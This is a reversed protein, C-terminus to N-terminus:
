RSLRIELAHRRLLDAISEAQEADFGLWAVPKGFDIVVKGDKQGVALRIEGEDDSQLKGQPFLGTAGLSPEQSHFFEDAFPGNGHHAM